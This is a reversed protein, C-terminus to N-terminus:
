ILPTTRSVVNGLNVCNTHVCTTLTPSAHIIAWDRCICASTTCQGITTGGLCPNACSPIGPPPTQAHALVALAITVVITYKM